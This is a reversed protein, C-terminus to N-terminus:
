PTATTTSGGAATTTSSSGAAPATTTATTGPATTVSTPVGTTTPIVSADSGPPTSGTPLSGDTTPPLTRCVQLLDVVFILTSNPPISGKDQDAYALAPPIVLKRRGGVKMGPIGDDWGKIVMGQGLTVAFPQREAKWSSDFEKGDTFLVGTYMMQVEDGTKAEEGDGVKLDEKVLETPADGQGKEVTPHQDDGPKTISTPKCDKAETTPTTPAKGTGLVTYAVEPEDGAKAGCSVTGVAIAGCAAACLVM